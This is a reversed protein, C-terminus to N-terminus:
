GVLKIIRNPSGVYVSGKDNRLLSLPFKYSSGTVCGSSSSSCVPLVNRSDMDLLRLKQNGQDALLILGDEIEIMEQPINFRAIAFDGDKNGVDTQVTLKVSAAANGNWLVESIYHQNSVLLIDNYWVLGKPYSFGSSIITRVYGSSLDLSRLAHNNQDSILVSGPNNKDEVVAYPSYFKSSAGDIFGSKGCTGALVTQSNINRDVMIVCHQKQDVLVVHSENLQTFGNVGVFGSAVAESSNGTLTELSNRDSYLISGDNKLKDFEMHFVNGTTFAVFESREFRYSFISLHSLKGLQKDTAFYGGKSNNILM